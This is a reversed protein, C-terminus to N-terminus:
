YCKDHLFIYNEQSQGDAAQRGFCLIIDLTQYCTTLHSKM